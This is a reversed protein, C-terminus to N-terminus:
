SFIFFRATFLSDTYRLFVPIYLSSSVFYTFYQFLNFSFIFLCLNIQSIGISTKQLLTQRSLKSHSIVHAYHQILILHDCIERQGIIRTVLRSQFSGNCTYLISDALSDGLTCFYKSICSIKRSIVNFIKLNIYISM